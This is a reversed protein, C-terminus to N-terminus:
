DLEFEKLYDEVDIERANPQEHKILIFNEMVLVDMNTNM